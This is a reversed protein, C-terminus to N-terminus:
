LARRFTSRWANLIPVCSQGRIPCLTRVASTICSLVRSAQTASRTMAHRQSTRGPVPRHANDAGRAIARTSAAYRQGAATSRSRGDGVSLLRTPLECRRPSQRMVFHIVARMDFAADPKRVYCLLATSRPRRRTGPEARCALTAGKAYIDHRATRDERSAARHHDVLAAAEREPGGQCACTARYGDNTRCRDSFVEADVSPCACARSGGRRGTRRVNAARPAAAHRAHAREGQPSVRLTRM